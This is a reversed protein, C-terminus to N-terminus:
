CPLRSGAKSGTVTSVCGPHSRGPHWRGRYGGGDRHLEGAVNRVPQHHGGAARIPRWPLVACPLCPGYLYSSGCRTLRSCGAAGRQRARGAVRGTKSTVIARAGQRWEWCFRRDAPVARGPHAGDAIVLPHRLIRSVTTAAFGTDNRFFLLM